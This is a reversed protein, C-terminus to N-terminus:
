VELGSSEALSLLTADADSADEPTSSFSAIEEPNVEPETPLSPQLNDQLSQLLEQVINVLKDVNQAITHEDQQIDHIDNQINKLDTATSMNFWINMLFTIITFAIKIDLKVKKKDAYAVASEPIHVFEDNITQVTEQPLEVYEKQSPANLVSVALKSLTAEMESIDIFPIANSSMLQNITAAVQSTLEKSASITELFDNSGFYAQLNQITQMLPSSPSIDKSINAIASRFEPSLPKILSTYAEAIAKISQESM